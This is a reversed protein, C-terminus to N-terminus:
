EPPVHTVDECLRWYVWRSCSLMPEKMPPTKWGIYEDEPVSFRDTLEYRPVIVSEPFGILNWLPKRKATMEWSPM